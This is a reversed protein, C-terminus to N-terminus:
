IKIQKGKEKEDDCYNLNLEYDMERGIDGKEQKYTQGNRVNKM